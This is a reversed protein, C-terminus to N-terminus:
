GTWPWASSALDILWRYAYAHPCDAFLTDMPAQPQRPRRCWAAIAHHAWCRGTTCSPAEARSERLDPLRWRVGWRTRQAGSRRAEQATSEFEAPSWPLFRDM